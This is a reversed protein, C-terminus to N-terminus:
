LGTPSDIINTDTALHNFRSLYYRPYWLLRRSRPGNMRRNASERLGMRNRLIVPLSLAIDWYQHSITPVIGNRSVYSSVENATVMEM